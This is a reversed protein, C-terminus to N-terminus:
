KNDILLEKEKLELAKNLMNELDQKKRFYFWNMKWDFTKEHQNIAVWLEYSIADIIEQM